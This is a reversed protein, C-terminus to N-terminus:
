FKWWKKQTRSYGYGYKGGYGLNSGKVDNVVFSLGRIKGEKQLKLPYEVAQKETVGARTVYIMHKAYSSILLTDTVVMVPATDVVVYDYKGSAERILDKLRESMLLEAPNPPIRGSYIVDITNKHVLMTNVIDQIDLKDDYLYETLGADKNRQYRGLKDVNNGVFYSYLKPNRIDAGILLVKKNTSSLILSLNTSLFTKGEGPTSSTILVVNNLEADKSSKMLYDLNTRIIRIAEALISRDDSEIFKNENKGLRPLEGLVPVERSIQELNHMNHIKNDLLDNAYIVSFPIVLGLALCVVYVFSRKPSVPIKSTIYAADVIQSKPGTSAVAIQAEESKQLLYLYLSETTQQQRTIDRLARENRPASYIRSNIIQQQGSLTNVQLSLSNVTSGLSSQISSKLSELQQDLNQVIPSRETSSQLLRQREQVLRNYQQTTNAITPDSLGINTPLVEYGDQQEVIDQMSAAIELQTRSNALAQQNTAGINLNINSQSAIDTLGRSTRLEEESEDVNTLNSSIVAIRDNIFQSTRDAIEKKDQIANENYNAILANLIDVAKEKIPDQLSIDVINSYDEAVTITIKEQYLTAMDDLPTVVVKLKRDKYRDIQELNPTILIDGIPSDMRTGFGVVKAPSDETEYFRFNTSSDFELFFQYEAKNIVSDPSLFSVNIPPNKYIESDLINGLVMIKYNLGLERVVSIVNSRSNIVEIEDQVKNNGGTIVDLESFLDFGSAASQDEIIKVKARAEYKPVTYRLYLTGLAIFLIISLLFWKWHRSYLRLTERLNDIESM